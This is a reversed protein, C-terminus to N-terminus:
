GRKFEYREFTASTKRKIALGMCPIQDMSSNMPAEDDFYPDDQLLIRAEPPNDSICKAVADLFLDGGSDDHHAALKLGRSRNQEGYKLDLMTLGLHFMDRKETARDLLLYEPESLVFGEPTSPNDLLLCNATLKGYARKIFHLDAIKRLLERNVMRLYKKPFGGFDTCFDFATRRHREREEEAKKQREEEEIEIEEEEKVEREQENGM